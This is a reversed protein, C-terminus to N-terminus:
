NTKSPPPFIGRQSKKGLDELKKILNWLEPQLDIYFSHCTTNSRAFFIIRDKKHDQLKKLSNDLTNFFAQLYSLSNNKNLRQCHLYM